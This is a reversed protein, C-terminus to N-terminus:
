NTIHNQWFWWLNFIINLIIIGWTLKTLFRPKWKDARLRTAREAILLPLIVLAISGTVVLFAATTQNRHLCVLAIDAQVPLILLFVALLFAAFGLPHYRRNDENM